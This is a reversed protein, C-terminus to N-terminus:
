CNFFFLVHFFLNRPCRVDRSQSNDIYYKTARTDRVRVSCSPVSGVRVVALVLSTAAVTTSGTSEVRREWRGVVSSFSFGCLLRARTESSAAAGRTGRGSEDSSIDDVARGGSDNTARGDHLQLRQGTPRPRLLSIVKGTTASRIAIVVFYHKGIFYYLLIKGNTRIYSKKQVSWNYM